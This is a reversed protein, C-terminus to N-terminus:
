LVSQQAPRFLRGALLFGVVLTVTIAVWAYKPAKKGIDGPVRDAVKQAKANYRSLWNGVDKKMMSYTNSITKRAEDSFKKFGQSFRAFSDEVFIGMEKKVRSADQRVKKELQQDNM